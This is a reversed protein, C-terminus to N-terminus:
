PALSMLLVAALVALEALLICAMLADTSPSPRVVEHRGGVAV